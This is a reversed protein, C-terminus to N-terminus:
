LSKKLEETWAEIRSETQEAQNNEDILLGVFEGKNVEATSADYQYGETRVSGVFSCGTDQLKEYITGVADCFTDGFSAGDGCGFLAVTKDNLDYDTIKDLFDYWDNQMDGTGWTSSGLILAEYSAITSAETSGVNYVDSSAIGLKSAIQEAISETVGTTSGFFIGTKKM